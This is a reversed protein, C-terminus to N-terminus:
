SSCLVSNEPSKLPRYIATVFCDISVFFMGRLVTVCNKSVTTFWNVYINRKRESEVYKKVIGKFVITALINCEHILVSSFRPGLVYKQAM